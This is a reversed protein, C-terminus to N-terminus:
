MLFNFYNIEIIIVINTNAAIVIIPSKRKIDVMEIEVGKEKVVEIEKEVGIEIGIEIKVEIKKEIEMNKKKINRMMRRDQQDTIMVEKPLELWKQTARAAMIQENELVVRKKMIASMDKNNSTKAINVRMMPHKLKTLYWITALEM